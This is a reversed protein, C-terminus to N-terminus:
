TGEKLVSVDCLTVSPTQINIPSVCAVIKLGTLSILLTHVTINMHIHCGM